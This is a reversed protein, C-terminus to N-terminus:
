YKSVVGANFFSVCHFHYNDDFQVSCSVYISCSDVYISCKKGLKPKWFQPHLRYPSHMMGWLFNSGKKMFSISAVTMLLQFLFLQHYMYKINMHWCIVNNQLLPSCSKWNESEIIMLTDERIWKLIIVTHLVEYVKIAFIIINTSLNM